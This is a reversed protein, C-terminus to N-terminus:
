ETHNRASQEFIESAFDMEKQSFNLGFLIKRASGRPLGYGGVASSIGVDIIRKRFVQRIRSVHVKVIDRSEPGITRRIESSEVVRGCNFLLANLVMLPGIGLEPVRLRYMQLLDVDVSGYEHRRYRRRSKITGTPETKEGVHLAIVESAMSTASKAQSAAAPDARERIQAAIARCSNVIIEAQALLTQLSHWHDSWDVDRDTFAAHKLERNITSQHDINKM